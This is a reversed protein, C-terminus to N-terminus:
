WPDFGPVTKGHAKCQSELKSLVMIYDDRSGVQAFDSEVQAQEHADLYPAAIHLVQHYHADASNVYNGKALSVVENVLGFNMCLFGFYMLGRALKAAMITERETTNGTVLESKINPTDSNHRWRPHIEFTQFVYALVFNLAFGLLVVVVAMSTFGVATQNDVAVQQYVGNKYSTLGLSALDLVWRTIAHVAPGLISQWVPTGLASVLLGGVIGLTWKLSKNELLAFRV